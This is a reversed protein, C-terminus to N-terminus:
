KNSNLSQTVQRSSLVPFEMKVKNRLVTAKLFSATIEINVHEQSTSDCCVTVVTLVWTGVWPLRPCLCLPGSRDALFPFSFFHKMSSHYRIRTTSYYNGM